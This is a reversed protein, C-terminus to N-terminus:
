LSEWERLVLIDGVQYGRDDRRYEFRKSGDLLARFADSRTKLTVARAGGPTSPEGDWLELSMVCYGEPVGFTPGRLIYTVRFSLARDTYFGSHESCVVDRVEHEGCVVDGVWAVGFNQCGQVRCPWNTPDTLDIGGGGLYLNFSRLLSDLWRM